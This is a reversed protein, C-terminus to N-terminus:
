RGAVPMGGPSIEVRFHSAEDFLEIPDWGQIESLRALGKHVVGTPDLVYPDSRDEFWLTVMHHQGTGREVIIARYIEDRDFGLRRLLVFGLLDLGDCDDGGQDIVQGVTAWHDEKGDPRYYENSQAQVWGVLDAVLRRRDQARREELDRTLQEYRRGLESRVGGPREDGRDLHHRSQWESVKYNWPDSPPAPAFFNLSVSSVSRTACSVLLLASAATALLPRRM